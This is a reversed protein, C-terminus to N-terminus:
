LGYIYIDAEFFAGGDEETKAFNQLNAVLTNIYFIEKFELKVKM